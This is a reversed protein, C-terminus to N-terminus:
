KLKVKCYPCTDWDEQIRNKCQPCVSVQPKEEKKEEEPKKMELILAAIAIIAMVAPVVYLFPPVPTSTDIILDISTTENSKVEVRRETKENQWRAEVIHSGESVSAEFAGNELTYGRKSEDIYIEANEIPENKQNFVRIHVSGQPPPFIFNIYQKSTAAIHLLSIREEGEFEATITHEGFEVEQITCIGFSDTSGEFTNDLLVNAGSIPNGEEDVIKVEIDAVKEVYGCESSNEEIIYDQVCEGDVCKMAWLDCDYCKEFCMGIDDSLNDIFYQAKEIILIDCGNGYPDVIYEVDGPSTTWAVQSIGEDVLQKIIINTIPNGILILNYDCAAKWETFDLETDMMVLGTEDTGVTPEGSPPTETYTMTSIKAAIMTALVVDMAAAGSGVVIIANPQGTQDDVFFEKSLCKESTTNLRFIMDIYSMQCKSNSMGLFEISSVAFMSFLLLAFPMTYTKCYLKITDGGLEMKKRNLVINRKVLSTRM